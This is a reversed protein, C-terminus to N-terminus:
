PIPRGGLFRRVEFGDVYGVRVSKVRSAADILALFPVAEVKYRRAFAVPQIPRMVHTGAPAAFRDRLAEPGSEDAIWVEPDGPRRSALYQKLAEDMRDCAPCDPGRVYLLAPLAAASPFAVSDAGVRVPVVPASDGALSLTVLRSLRASEERRKEEASQSFRRMGWLGVAVAVLVAATLAWDAWNSRRASM